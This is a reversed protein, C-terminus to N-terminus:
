DFGTPPRANRKDQFHTSELKKGAQCELADLLIEDYRSQELGPTKLEEVLERLTNQQTPGLGTM